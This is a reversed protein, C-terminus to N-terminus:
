SLWDLTVLETVVLSPVPEEVLEITELVPLVHLAIYLPRRQSIEHWAGCAACHTFALFPGAGAHKQLYNQLAM